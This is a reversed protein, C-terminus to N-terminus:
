SRDYQGDLPNLTEKLRKVGRKTARSVNTQHIQLEEAIEEQTMDSMYYMLLIDKQHTTLSKLEQELMIKEIIADEDFDVQQQMLSEIYSAKLDELRPTWGNMEVSYGSDLSVTKRDENFYDMEKRYYNWLGNRAKSTIHRIASPDLLENYDWIGEILKLDIQQCIDDFEVGKGAFKKALSKRFPEFQKLITELAMEIDYADSSTQVVNILEKLSMEKEKREM